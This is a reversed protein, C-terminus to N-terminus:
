NGHNVGKGNIIKRMEMMDELVTCADIEMLESKEIALDTWFFCIGNAQGIHFDDKGSNMCDKIMIKAKQTMEKYDM